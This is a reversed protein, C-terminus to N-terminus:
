VEIVTKPPVNRLSARFLAQTFPEKGEFGNKGPLLKEIVAGDKMVYIIDAVQSALLINHTIFLFSLPWETRIGQLLEIIEMETTVDLATTPEDAVLLKPGTLIATAIMVRQKMGGSLEHPYSFFIRRPEPLRAEALCIMCAKEAEKKGSRRYHTLYTEMMQEGVTMVPNLSNHPDQFIYAIGKGRVKRLEEESLTLLDRSASDDSWLVAGTIEAGGVLRTLSLATMTKGSGSEGVLCVWQREPIDMSVNKVVARPGGQSPFSVTLDKIELLNGPM